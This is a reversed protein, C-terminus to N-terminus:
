VSLELLKPELSPQFFLGFFPLITIKKFLYGITVCTELDMKLFIIKLDTAKTVFFNLAM